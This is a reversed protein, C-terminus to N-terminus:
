QLLKIKNQENRSFIWSFDDLQILPIWMANDSNKVRKVVNVLSLKVVFSNKKEEFEM